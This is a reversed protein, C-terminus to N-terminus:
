GFVSALILTMLILTTLNLTTLNLLMDLVTPPEPAWPPLPTELMAVRTEALRQVLDTECASLGTQDLIRRRYENDAQRTTPVRPPLHNRVKEDEDLEREYECDCRANYDACYECFDTCDEYDGRQEIYDAM